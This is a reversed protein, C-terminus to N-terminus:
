VVQRIIADIKHYLEVRSGNNSITYDAEIDMQESVHNQIGVSGDCGDRQVKITIVREFHKKFFDIENTYRNDGIILVKGPEYRNYEYLLKDCWIDEGIINRLGEGITQQMERYTIGHRKCIRKKNYLLDHMTVEYVSCCVKRVFHGLNFRITPKNLNYSIYDATTDKGSQAKGQILFCISGQGSNKM